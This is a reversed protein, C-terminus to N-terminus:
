KTKQKRLGMRKKPKLADLTGLLEKSCIRFDLLIKTISKQIHTHLSSGEDLILLTAPQGCRWLSSLDFCLHFSDHIKAQNGSVKGM